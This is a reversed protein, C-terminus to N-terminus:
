EVGALAADLADVDVGLDMGDTAAGAGPSAKSCGSAKAHCLRADKAVGEKFERIGAADPSSVVITGKPWGGKEGIILNKEFKWNVFCENLVAEAGARQSRHACNAAGGGTSAFELRTKGGLFLSNTVRFNPIKQEKDGVYFLPGTVFATVHDFSVDHLLPTNSVVIAFTGQGKWDKDHLGDVLLDHISYRGGDATSGGQKSLGNAVQIVGAVNRIRNYRITVDTVECKPCKNSQSKPTLLISFGTQTFGGWCNEMLNAEFLVRIGSKLEFHNKVIVPNGGGAPTYGPEGEKWLMPRFLHNRRIEIDTPNIESAAGGFLINEGSAELFNNFIKLTGIPVEANGGGLASSDTCTGTRAVCYFGSLYSNIVAIFHTGEVMGIGKNMEAGDPPHLWNRDFILHDAGETTILRAIHTDASSSWEVGIFRYHDGLKAGSRGKVILTAMLKAPGGPPQAYPPRGPLSAVGAWAPSIRTGEPPLKSDPTDTRITIYHQDDCKKAPLDRIEFFAGAALLLTDGCRASEVAERLDSNAAVHVQKGPSPTGDLGTYYCAKPLQAPGDKDGFKPANGEDCYANEGIPPQTSAAASTVFAVSIAVGGLFYFVISQFILIHVRRHHGSLSSM